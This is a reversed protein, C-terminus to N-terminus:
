EVNAKVLKGNKVTLIEKKTAELDDPNFKSFPICYDFYGCDLSIDDINSRTFKGFSMNFDDLMEVEDFGFVLEGEKLYVEEEIIPEDTTGVLDENGEYPLVDYHAKPLAIYGSLFINHENEHSVVSYTWCKKKNIDKERFIVEDKCKFKHEMTKDEFMEDTWTWHNEDNEIKYTNGYIAYITVEKGCWESMEKVFSHPIRVIGDEGKNEEYWEKSKVKVKDGVKYKMTIGGM